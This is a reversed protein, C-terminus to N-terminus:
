ELPGRRGAPPWALTLEGLRWRRPTLQIPWGAARLAGVAQTWRMRPGFPAYSAAHDWAEDFATLLAHIPEGAVNRAILAKPLREALDSPRELSPLHASLTLTGPGEVPLAFWCARRGIEDCTGEVLLGGPALRSRMAQWAPEVEHEAYQRLVNMARIVLPRRGALEFGGRAFTLGPPRAAHVAAAVREPDLELGLVRASPCVARLRDYLEVATVPSAGYGLDIVLPEDAARLLAARTGTLWRDVRRLRNPATTGRTPLGLARARGAALRPPRRGAAATTM